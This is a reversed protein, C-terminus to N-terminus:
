MVGYYIYHGGCGFTEKDHMLNRIYNYNPAYDWTLTSGSVTVTPQPNSVGANYATASIPPSDPGHVTFWCPEGQTLREDTISGKGPARDGTIPTSIKGLINMFRSNLNIRLYGDDADYVELSGDAM